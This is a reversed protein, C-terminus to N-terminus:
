VLIKNEFEKFKRDIKFNRNECYIKLFNPNKFKHQKQLFPDNM